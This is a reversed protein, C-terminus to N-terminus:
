KNLRSLSKATYFGCQRIFDIKKDFGLGKKKFWSSLGFVYFFTDVQCDVAGKLHSVCNMLHFRKQDEDTATQYNNLCEEAYELYDRAYLDLDPLNPVSGGGGEIEFTHLYNLLFNRVQEKKSM